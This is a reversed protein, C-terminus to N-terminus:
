QQQGNVVGVLEDSNRIAHGRSRWTRANLISGPDLKFLTALVYM